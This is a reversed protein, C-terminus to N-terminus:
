IFKVWQKREKENLRFIGLKIIEIVDTLSEQFQLKESETLLHYVKSSTEIDAEKNSMLKYFEEEKIEVKLLEMWKGEKEEFAMCPTPTRERGFCPNRFQACKRCEDSIQLSKVIPDKSM